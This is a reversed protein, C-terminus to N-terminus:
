TLRFAEQSVRQLFPRARAGSSASPPLSRTIVRCNISVFLRLLAFRPSQAILNSGLADQAFITSRSPLNILLDAGHFELSVWRGKLLIEDNSCKVFKYDM